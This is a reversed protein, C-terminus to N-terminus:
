AAKLKSLKSLSFKSEAYELTVNFEKVKNSPLQYMADTLIAECISRLGRAGLKYELAKQVMFDFVDLDFNLKIDELEFLRIYQKVLANRPETLISRLTEADL